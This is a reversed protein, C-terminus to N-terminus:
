LKETLFVSGTLYINPELGLHFHQHSLPHGLSYVLSVKRFGEDLYLLLSLVKSFPLVLLADTLAAPQIKELVTLVYTTPDMDYAALIANRQPLPLAMAQEPTCQSKAKEYEQFLLREGDAADIAEIIREGAMLTDLSQKAVASAEPQASSPEDGRLSIQNRENLTDTIQLDHLQELEREREEELFLQGTANPGLRKCDLQFSKRTRRTKGM